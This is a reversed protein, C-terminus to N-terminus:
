KEAAGGLPGALSRVMQELATTSDETVILHDGPRLAYDYAFEVRGKGRNYKADMKQREDGVVRIVEINM